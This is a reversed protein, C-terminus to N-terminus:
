GQSAPKKAKQNERIRQKEAKEAKVLKKLASQSLNVWKDDRYVQPQGHFKEVVTALQSASIVYARRKTEGKYNANMRYPCRRPKQVKEPETKEKEENKLDVGGFNQKSPQIQSFHDGRIGLALSSLTESRFRHFRQRQCPVSYEKSKDSVLTRHGVTAV